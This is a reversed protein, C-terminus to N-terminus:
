KEATKKKAPVTEVTQQNSEDEAAKLEEVLREYEAGPLDMVEAIDMKDADPNSAVFARNMFLAKYINARAMSVEPHAACYDMFDCHSGITNKFYIEKGNITM